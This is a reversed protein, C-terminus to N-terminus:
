NITQKYDKKFENKDKLKPNISVYEILRLDKIEIEIQRWVGDKTYQVTSSIGNGATTYSDGKFYVLDYTIIKDSSGTNVFKYGSGIEMLQNLENLFSLLKEKNKFQKKLFLKILPESIGGYWIPEVMVISSNVRDFLVVCTGQNIHYGLFNTLEIEYFDYNPLVAKLLPKDLKEINAKDSFYVWRGDQTSNESLEKKLVEDLSPRTQGNLNTLFGLIFVITLLKMKPNTVIAELPLCKM